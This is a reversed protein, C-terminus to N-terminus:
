HGLWITVSRIYSLNDTECARAALKYKKSFHGVLWFAQVAGSTFHTTNSCM